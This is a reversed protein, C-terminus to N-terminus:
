EDSLELSFSATSQQEIISLLSVVHQWSTNREVIISVHKASAILKAISQLELTENGLLISGDKLITLTILATGPTESTVSSELSIPISGSSAIGSLLLFFIILLFAIDSPQGLNRRNRM